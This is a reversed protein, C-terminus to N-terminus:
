LPLQREREGIKPGDTLVYRVGAIWTWLAMKGERGVRKGNGAIGICIMDEKRATGCIRGCHRSRQSFGLDRLVLVLHGIGSVGTSAWQRVKDVSAPPSYRYLDAIM